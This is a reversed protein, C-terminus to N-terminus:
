ASFFTRATDITIGQEQEELLRRFLFAYEFRERSVVSPRCRKSNEEPLSGSDAYSSRGAHVRGHDVHGVVDINLNEKPQTVAKVPATTITTSM